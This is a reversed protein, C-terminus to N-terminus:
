SREWVDLEISHNVLAPSIASGDPNKWSISLSNLGRPEAWLNETYPPVRTSTTETPFRWYPTGKTTKGTLPLEAIRLLYGTISSSALDVAVVRDLPIALDVRYTNTDGAARDASWVLIRHRKLEHSM